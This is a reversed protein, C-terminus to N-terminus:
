PLRAGCNHCFKHRFIPNYNTLTRGCSDCFRIMRLNMFIIFAMGPIMLLIMVLPANAAWFFGVGLPAMLTLSWLLVRRKFPVDDSFKLVLMMAVGVLVFAISILNPLLDPFNNVDQM